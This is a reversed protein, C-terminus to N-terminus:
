ASFCQLSKTSNSFFIAQPDAPFREAFKDEATSLSGPNCLCLCRPSVWSFGQKIGFAFCLHFSDLLVPIPPTPQLIRNWWIAITKQM